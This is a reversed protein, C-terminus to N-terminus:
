PRSLQIWYIIKSIGVVFSCLSKHMYIDQPNAFEIFYTHFYWYLLWIRHRGHYGPCSFYGLGKQNLGKRGKQHAKHRKPVTLTKSDSYLIVDPSSLEHNKRAKCLM